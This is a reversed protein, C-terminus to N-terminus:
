NGNKPLNVSNNAFELKSTSYSLAAILNKEEYNM